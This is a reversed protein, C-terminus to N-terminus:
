ILIAIELIISGGFAILGIFRWKKSTRASESEIKHIEGLEDFLSRFVGEDDWYDSRVLRISSLFNQPLTM